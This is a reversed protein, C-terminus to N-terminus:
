HDHEVNKLGTHCSHPPLLPECFGTLHECSSTLYMAMYILLCGAGKWDLVCVHVYVCVCMCACVCVCACVCACEVVCMTECVCVHVCVYAHMRM